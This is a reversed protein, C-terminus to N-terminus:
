QGGARGCRRVVGFRLTPDNVVGLVLLTFDESDGACQITAPKSWAGLHAVSVLGRWDADVEQAIAVSIGHLIDTTSLININIALSVQYGTLRLSRRLSERDVTHGVM